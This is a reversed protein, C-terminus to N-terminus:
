SVVAFVPSHSLSDNGSGSIPSVSPLLQVRPISQGTWRQSQQALSL